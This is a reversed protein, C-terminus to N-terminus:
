MIYPVVMKLLYLRALRSRNHVYAWYHGQQAGGELEMMAHLCYGQQQLSVEEYMGKIM